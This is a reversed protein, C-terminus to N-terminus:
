HPDRSMTRRRPRGTMLWTLRSLHALRELGVRRQRNRPLCNLGPHRNTFALEGGGSPLRQGRRPHVCCPYQPCILRSRESWVTAIGSPREGSRGIHGFCIPALATRASTPRVFTALKPVLPRAQTIWCATKWCIQFEHEDTMGKLKCCENLLGVRTARILATVKRSPCHRACFVDPRCSM